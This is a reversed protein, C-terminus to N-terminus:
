DLDEAVRFQDARHGPPKQFWVGDDRWGAGCRRVEAHAGAGWRNRPMDSRASPVEPCRLQRAAGPLVRAKCDAHGSRNWQAVDRIYAALRLHTTVDRGSRRTRAAKRTNMTKAPAFAIPTLNTSRSIPGNQDADIRKASAPRRSEAYM